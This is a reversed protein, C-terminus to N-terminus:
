CLWWPKFRTVKPLRLWLSYSIAFVSLYSSSFADIWHCNVSHYKIFRLTGVKPGRYWMGLRKIVQFMQREKFLRTLSLPWLIDWITCYCSHSKQDRSLKLIVSYSWPFCSCNLFNYFWDVLCDAWTINPIFAYYVFYLSIHFRYFHVTESQFPLICIVSQM